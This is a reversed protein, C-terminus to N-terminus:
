IQLSTSKRTSQTQRIRKKVLPLNRSFFLDCKNVKFSAKRFKSLEIARDIDYLHYFNIKWASIQM